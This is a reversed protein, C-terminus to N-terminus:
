EGEKINKIQTKKNIIIAQIMASEQKNHIYLLKIELESIENNIRRVEIIKQNGSYAEKTVWRLDGGWAAAMFLGLIGVWISRADKFFKALKNM